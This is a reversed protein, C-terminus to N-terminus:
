KRKIRHHGTNVFGNKGGKPEIVHQWNKKRGHSLSGGRTEKRPGEKEENWTIYEISQEKKSM